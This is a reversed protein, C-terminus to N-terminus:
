YDKGKAMRDAPSTKGHVRVADEIKLAETYHRPMELDKWGGLTQLSFTDAGGRLLNIAFTNRFAHPTWRANGGHKRLRRVMTQIAAKSMPTGDEKLWLAPNDFHRRLSLYEKLADLATSNLHVLVQQGGKEWVRTLGTELNIDALNLGSCAGLRVGTDLFFLIIAKNRAATFRSRGCDQIVRKILPLPIDQKIIRPLDSRPIKNMPNAEAELIEEKVLWSFFAQLTRWYADVTSISALKRSSTSGIGWRNTATRVYVLLARLVPPTVQSIQTPGNTTALWWHIRALNDRYFTLTDTAKGAAEKATLFQTILSDISTNNDMEEGRTVYAFFRRLIILRDEPLNIQPFIARIRALLQPTLPRRGNHLLSLYATSIGLKKALARDSLGEFTSLAPPTNVLKYVNKYVSALM